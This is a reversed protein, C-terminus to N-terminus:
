APCFFKFDSGGERDGNQVGTTNQPQCAVGLLLDQTCLVDSPGRIHCQRAFGASWGKGLKGWARRAQLQLQLGYWLGRGSRACLGAMTRCHWAGVHLIHPLLSPTQGQLPPQPQAPLFSAMSCSLFPLPICPICPPPQSAPQLPLLPTVNRRRGHWARPGAIFTLPNSILGLPTLCERNGLASHSPASLPRPPPPRFGLFTCLGRGRVPQEPALPGPRSDRTGAPAASAALLPILQSLLEGEEPGM